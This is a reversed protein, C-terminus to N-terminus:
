KKYAEIDVQIFKGYKPKDTLHKNSCLWIIDMNPNPPINVELDTFILSVVPKTEKMHQFVCKLCTGGRGVIDFEDFSCSETLIQEKQIETDFSVLTIKEPKFENKINKVETNFIMIEDDTVSGSSDIYVNISTLKDENDCLSPLLFEESRRNPRRFSRHEQIYEIFYKQLLIGFKIKPKLFDNVVKQIEGPINGAQTGNSNNNKNIIDIIGSMKVKIDLESTNSETESNGNLSGYSLDLKMKPCNPINKNQILDYIEETSKDIYKKEYIPKLVSTTLKSNYILLNNVVIDAAINWIHKDRDGLRITHMFAIHWLEHALLFLQDNKDLQIFENYNFYISDGDTKAIFDEESNEKIFYININCLINGLFGLDEKFFLTKKLERFTNLFSSDLEEQNILTFM